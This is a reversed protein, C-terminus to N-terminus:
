AKINKTARNKPVVKKELPIVAKQILIIEPNSIIMQMKLKSM